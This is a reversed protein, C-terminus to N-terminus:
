GEGDPYEGWPLDAARQEAGPNGDGKWHRGRNQIYEDGMGYQHAASPEVVVQGRERRIAAREQPTLGGYLFEREHAIGWEACALQLPCAACKSKMYAIQTKPARELEASFAEDGICNAGSDLTPYPMMVAAVTRGGRQLVRWQRPLIPYDRPHTFPVVAPSSM